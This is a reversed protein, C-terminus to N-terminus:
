AARRLLNLVVLALASVLVYVGLRASWRDAASM